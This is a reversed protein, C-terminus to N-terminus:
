TRSRISNPAVQAATFLVKGGLAVRLTSAMRGIKTEARGQVM